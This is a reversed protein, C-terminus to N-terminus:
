IRFTIYRRHMRVAPCLAMGIVIKWTSVVDHGTIKVSSALAERQTAAIPGNFISGPLALFFLYLAIATKKVQHDPLGYYQLM